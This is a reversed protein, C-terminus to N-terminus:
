SFLTRQAPEQKPVYFWQEGERRVKREVELTELSLRVAGYTVPPMARGNRRLVTLEHVLEDLTRGDGHLTMLHDLIIAPTTQM